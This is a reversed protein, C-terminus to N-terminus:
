LRTDADGDSSKYDHGIVDVEENSKGWVLGEAFGYLVDFLADGFRKACVIRVNTDPLWAKEIVQQPIAFGIALLPRVDSVVGNACAQTRMRIRPGELAFDYM